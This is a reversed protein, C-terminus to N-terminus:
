KYFQLYSDLDADSMDALTKIDGVCAKVKDQLGLINKNMEVTKIAEPNVDIGYVTEQKKVYKSLIM